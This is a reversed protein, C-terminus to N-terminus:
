EAEGMDAGTLRRLAAAGAAFAPGDVFSCLRRAEVQGLGPSGLVDLALTDLVSRTELVAGSDVLLARLEQVEVGEDPEPM